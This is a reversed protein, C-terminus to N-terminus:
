ANHHTNTIILSWMLGLTLLLVLISKPESVDISEEPRQMVGHFSAGQGDGNFYATVGSMNFYGSNEIITIFFQETLPTLNLTDGFGFGSINDVDFNVNLASALESSGPSAGTLLDFSDGIDLKDPGFFLHVGSSEIGVFGVDTIIANDFQCILAAYTHSSVVILCCLTVAKCITKISIKVM